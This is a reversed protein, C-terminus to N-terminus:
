TLDEHILFLKNAKQHKLEKMKLSRAQKRSNAVTQKKQLKLIEKRLELSTRKQNIKM